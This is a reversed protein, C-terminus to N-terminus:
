QKLNKLIEGTLKNTLVKDELGLFGFLVQDQLYFNITGNYKDHVVYPGNKWDSPVQEETYNFYDKLIKVCDDDQDRRFIVISFSYDGIEYEAKFADQLFENGLVNSSIFSDSYNNKGETPFISLIEPLDTKDGLSSSVARAVNMIEQGSNKDGVGATVKVYYSGTVFNVLNSEAYGQAGIEVFHYDPSRETSYIGYADEPRLHKYVEVKVIHGKGDKYEAIKLIEFHYALYGDAAGNIYDWLDEGSYDPYNHEITMGGVEPFKM